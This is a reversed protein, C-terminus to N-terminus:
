RKPALGMDQLSKALSSNEEIFTESALSPMEGFIPEDAEVIDPEFGELSKFIAAGLTSGAPDHICLNWGDGTDALSIRLEMFRRALDASVHLLAQRFAYLDARLFQADKHALDAVVHGKENQLAAEFLTYYSPPYTDPNKSKPM